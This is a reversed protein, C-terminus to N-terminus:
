LNDRDLLEFLRLMAANGQKIIATTNAQHPYNGKKDKGGGHAIQNRLREVQGIGSHMGNDQKRIKSLHKHGVGTNKELRGDIYETYGYFWGYNGIESPAFKEAIGTEAAVQLAIVAQTVLGKEYLLKSYEWVSRAVPYNEREKPTLTCCIKDFRDKVDTVWQPKGERNYDHLANNLQKLFDPIQLSFNSEVIESFRILCKAGSEWYPKIKEALPKGEFKGDFLNIATSIEYYDWYPSLDRVDSIKKDQQGREGYIMKVKRGSIKLSNLQLSQFILLPMSRFGHTIDFLIDTDPELENPIEGYISFVDEVNMFSIKDTHPPLIKFKINNYWQPLRSELDRISEDSIGTEKKECEELIKQWFGVNEDSDRNPILADWSTTRTGILIVKKIPWNGAQIVAEMFLSTEWEFERGNYSPFRYITRDYGNKSLGTGLSSILTYGNM